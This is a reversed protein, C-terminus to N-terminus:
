KRSSFCRLFPNYGGNVTIADAKRLVLANLAKCGWFFRDDIKNINIDAKELASCGSFAEGNGGSARTVPTLVTFEKLKFCDRFAAYWMEKVSPFCATELFKAGYFANERILAVNECRIGVLSTCDRFASGAIMTISNNEYSTITNTLRQALYDEGGTEIGAIETAMRDLTMEEAKGTKGRIADALATLKETLAM